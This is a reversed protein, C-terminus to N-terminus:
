EDAGVGKAGFFVEPFNLGVARTGSEAANDWIKMFQAKNQQFNTIREGQDAPYMFEVTTRDTDSIVNNSSPIYCSSQEGKLYYEKPFFYLMISRSDFDTAMLQLDEGVYPAMNFKITDQDWNNPPGSLYKVIYDWNFENSCNSLPSQHEHLFGMAHGFEHLIIGQLEPNDLAPPDAKDFGELNLSPEEQTAFVFSNQGLLSWYGPKDYSVRVQSERANPDCTRPSEPKGFDLKISMRPDDTWQSAIAAVKANVADSGGMFCVRIKAYTPPWQVLKSYVGKASDSDDMGELSKMAVSMRQVYVPPLGGKGTPDHADAGGAVLIALIGVWGLLTTAKAITM